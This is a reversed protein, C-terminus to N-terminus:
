GEIVADSPLAPLSLIDMSEEVIGWLNPAKSDGTRGSQWTQRGEGEQLDIDDHLYPRANVDDDDGGGDGSNQRKRPASLSRQM